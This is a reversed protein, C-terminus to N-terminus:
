IDENISLIRHKNITYGNVTISGEGILSDLEKNVQDFIEKRVEHETPNCPSRKEDKKRGEITQITKIIIEKM